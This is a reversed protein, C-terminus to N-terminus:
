SRRSWRLGFQGKRSSQSEPVAAIEPIPFEAM